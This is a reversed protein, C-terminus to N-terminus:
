PKPEVQRTQYGPAPRAPAMSRRTVGGEPPPPEQEIGQAADWQAQAWTHSAEVAHTRDEESLPEHEYAAETPNRAWHDNIATQGDAATMTINQGRYPGMICEVMVNGEANPVLPADRAQKRRDVEAQERKKRDDEAQAIRKQEAEHAERKREDATRKDDDAM